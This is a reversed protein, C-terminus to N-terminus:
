QASVQGAGAAVTRERLVARTRELERPYWAAALLWPIAWCAAATSLVIVFANGLGGFGALVGAVAPAAAAGITEVFYQAAVSTSRVEPLTVDCIAAAVSPGAFPILFAGTALLAAFVAPHAVPIRLAAIVILTGALTLSGALFRGRPNWRFLRDSLAGAVPYGIGLAVVVLVITALMQGPAYNRETELYRVFWWTLVNAPFVAFFGQAYLAVLTRNHLLGLAVRRDFRVEPVGHGALEPESAGRPVDRVLLLLLAAVIIGGAGTVVFVGRWGVHPLLLSAAVAGLLYGAPMTMKLAGYVRGRLMPPFYDALLSYVGPYSADDIGTSARSVVFLSYTPVIASTWTTAGWLLAALAVLRVRSWRDFLIGWVPYLLGGVLVSGSIAFGMAAEDIGFSQMIPTALTGSVLKDAQHLLMFLALVVLATRRDAHKM